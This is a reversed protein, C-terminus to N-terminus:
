EYGLAAGRWGSAPPALRARASSPAFFTYLQLHFLSPFPFLVLSFAFFRCASLCLFADSLESGQTKLPLFLEVCVHLSVGALRRAASCWELVKLKCTFKIGYLALWKLYGPNPNVRVRVRHLTLTVPNPNALRYCLTWCGVGM